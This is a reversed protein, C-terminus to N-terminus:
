KKSPNVKDMLHKAEAFFAQLESDAAVSSPHKKRWALSKDYWLQAEALDGLKCQNMAIFLWNYVVNFGQENSQKLVDISERWQGDRFLAVGLTNKWNGQSPSLKCAKRALQVTGATELYTGDSAPTAAFFWAVDNLIAVNDQQATLPILKKALVKQQRDDGGIQRLSRLLNLYHDLNDQDQEILWKLVLIREQHLSRTDLLWTMWRAIKVMDLDQYRQQYDSFVSMGAEPGKDIFARLIDRRATRFTSNWPHYGLWTVAPSQRPILRKAMDGAICMGHFSNTFYVIAQDNSRSGITFCKTAGDDGWHFFTGRKPELGWGLGWAAKSDTDEITIHPKLMMQISTLKLNKPALMEQLFRAYDGTTTLLSAAANAPANPNRRRHIPESLLNHRTALRSAFNTQYILSTSNMGLPGFVERKALSQLNTKELHELVRQVLRYGAPYYRFKTGPDEAFRLTQNDPGDLGTMHALAMRVTVRQSRPDDKPLPLSPLLEVLRDDLKLVDREVLRMVLYAFVPKTLSAAEFLTEDTVRQQGVKADGYVEIKMDRSTVTAFGLGPIDGQAMLKPINPVDAASEQSWVYPGKFSCFLCVFFLVPSPHKRM